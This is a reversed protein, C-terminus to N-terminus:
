NLLKNLKRLEIGFMIALIGAVFIPISVFYVASFMGILPNIIIMFAFILTLIAAILSWWWNHVGMDKMVFSFGIRTVAVFILWFGLYLILAQASLQPQFLLAAGLLMEILGFVLNWIWGSFYKRSRVAFVFHLGGSVFIFWGFLVALGLFAVVPKTIMFISLILLAAGALVPMWWEKVSGNLRYTTEMVKNKKSETFFLTLNCEANLKYSMKDFM